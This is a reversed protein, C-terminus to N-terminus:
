AKGRVGKNASWNGVVAEVCLLMLVVAILPSWKPQPHTAAALHTRLEDLSHAVVVNEGPLVAAVDRYKLVGEEAPPEVAAAGLTAADIAAGAPTKWQYIGADLTQSFTFQSQGAPRDIAFSAGAPTVLTLRTQGPATLKLPQGIEVNQVASTTADPLCFRVLMPLFLPHTGLTSFQPDPWTTLTYISGGGDKELTHHLAIPRPPGDGTAALLVAASADRDLPLLRRTTIAEIQFRQDLLDGLLARGDPPAAAHHTHDALPDIAPEGPLMPRIAQKQADPLAAWTAQLGPRWLLVLTAGRDLAQRLHAAQDRSPWNTMVAVIVTDAADITDGSKVHLPWDSSQGESPDLALTVFRTATQNPDGLVKVQRPAPTQVLTQRADDWPLDDQGDLAARVIMFPQAPLKIPIRLDAHGGDDLRAVRPAITSIMKGDLSQVAVSLGRSEGPRGDIHAVCEVGVGPLPQQPEASVAHVGASRAAPDHLDVVAVTGGAWAELAHPFERQQMDTLIVLMKRGSQQADLLVEAARIRDALPQPNPGPKLPQWAGSVDAAPRLTEGAPSATSTFVAVESGALELQLLDVAAQNARDLLSQGSSNTQMSYSTDIVIAATGVCQGTFSAALKRAPQAAALILLLLLLCRAALLLWKQVHRRAATRQMSSRIFRTTSFLVVPSKRRSLLHMVVPLGALPLALLGGLFLFDFGLM